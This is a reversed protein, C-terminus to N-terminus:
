FIMLPRGDNWGWPGEVWGSYSYAVIIDDTIIDTGNPDMLVSCIDGAFWDECGEFTWTLGNFDMLTVIDDDYNVECVVFTDAYFNCEAMAYGSVMMLVMVLAAVKKM